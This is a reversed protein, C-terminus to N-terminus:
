WSVRFGSTWTWGTYAGGDNASDSMDAYELGNQFKLKHGYWFYNVGLYIERYKDGRGQAVNATYRPFRIGNVDDSDLYTYRAVVQLKPSFSYFPMVTFGDLDSQGLYGKAKSFDSRVGWRDQEYSFNLSGIQELPRTFTNHLDPENDVYNFRLLAERAGLKDAFDHGITALVFEGGNSDGFGRDAAGSSFYGVNYVIGGKEGAASIGPIYEQTFWINNTLNSRDITLLEKSSTQGDMTFGVGQKGLTLELADSRSWSLYTDTLRRYNLNGGNPDYEAEAHFRFDDLFDIKVGFRFRRLDTDSFDGSNSEVNAQDFQVRGSLTVADVFSSEDGAFLSANSWIRDFASDDNQGWATSVSAVGLGLLFLRVLSSRLAFADISPM